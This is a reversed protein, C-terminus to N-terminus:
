NAIGQHATYSKENLKKFNYGRILGEQIIQEVANVSYSKIDHQLVILNSNGYMANIVNSAVKNTDTTNGADGSSVNWDFYHYGKQSLAIAIESMIGKCYNKSITNSSGGPLRVLNSYSGTQKKILENIQNFDNFYNNINRYIYSYDHSYTHVGIAHGRIYEEKILFQYSPFQNTVFFTAKVDYKDLIDLLKKTYAGPGDDFTLYITKGQSNSNNKQFVMVKRTISTENNNDDIVTYKVEYSGVKNTNVNSNIIIKSTIDGDCNDNATAGQENYKSGVVLKITDLGNLKIEPKSVDSYEIFIKKTSLNSSSDSVNLILENGIIDKKLRDTIDGDYNDIASYKLSYNNNNPCVNLVKSDDVEIIPPEIDKVEVIKKIKKKKGKVIIDYVIEYQGLVETDVNVEHELSINEVDKYGLIKNGYKVKITSETYINKYNIEQYIHEGNYNEIIFDKKILFVYLLIGIILFAFSSSIIIIRKNVAKM